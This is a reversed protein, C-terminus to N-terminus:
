RNKLVASLRRFDDDDRYAPNADLLMGLAEDLADSIERVREDHDRYQYHKEASMRAMELQNTKLMSELIKKHHRASEKCFSDDHATFEFQKGEITFVLMTNCYACTVDASM